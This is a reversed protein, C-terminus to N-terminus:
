LSRHWPLRGCGHPVRREGGSWRLAWAMAEFVVVLREFQETSLAGRLPQVALEIWEIRRYGRRPAEGPQEGAAEVTLRLLRRGLPLAEDSMDLLVAILADVRAHVDEGYRELDLRAGYGADAMESLTADIILQDLRPFYM